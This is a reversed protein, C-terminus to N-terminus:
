VQPLLVEPLVKLGPLSTWRGAVVLSADVMGRSSAQALIAQAL